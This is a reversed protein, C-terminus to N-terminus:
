LVFHLFRRIEMWDDSQFRVNKDDELTANPYFQKSYADKHKVFRITVDFHEPMPVNCEAAKKMALKAGEKMADQADLPHMAIVGGGVGENVAVTTIGPILKTATDCLAKDGSLFLVPVGFYGATYTNVLFESARVGNILVYENELNSTHSLPNGGSAAASHYGTFMVGGFDDRDLGSMMSLLDGTWSRLMKTNRPLKSHDINRGYQHADRVFVETAGACLAGQCTAAVEQTMRERFPNYDAGTKPDTERWDVIGCTGEIDASLFIKM